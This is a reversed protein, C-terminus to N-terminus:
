PLITKKSFLEEVDIVATSVIFIELFNLRFSMLRVTFKVRQLISILNGEKFNSLLPLAWLGEFTISHHGM